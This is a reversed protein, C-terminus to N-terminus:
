SYAKRRVFGLISFLCLVLLSISGGGGGSESASVVGSDVVSHSLLEDMTGDNNGTAADVGYRKILGVGKAYWDVDTVASATIANLGLDTNMTNPPFNKDLWAFVIVDDFTGAQVTLNPLKLVILELGTEQDLSIDVPFSFPPILVAEGIVEHWTIVDGSSEYIIGGSSNGVKIRGANLGINISEYTYTFQSNDSKVYSWTDGDNGNFFYESFKITAPTGPAANVNIRVGVTHNTSSEIYTGWSSDYIATKPLSFPANDPMTAYFDGDRPEFGLWYSGPQLDLGMGSVGFWNPNSTAQSFFSGAFFEQSIDPLNNADGYIAMTLTGPWIFNIFGQIEDIIYRQDLSFQVAYYHEGNINNIISWNNTSDAPQGTDVVYLANASSSIFIFIIACVTNLM